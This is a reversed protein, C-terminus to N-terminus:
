NDKTYAKCRPCRIRHVKDGIRKKLSKNFLKCVKSNESHHYCIFDGSDCFENFYTIPKPHLQMM